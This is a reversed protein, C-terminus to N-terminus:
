EEQLRGMLNPTYTIRKMTTRSVRCGYKESLLGNIDTYVGQRVVGNPGNVEVIDLLKVPVGSEGRINVYVVDGVKPENTNM